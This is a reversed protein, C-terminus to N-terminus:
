AEDQVEKTVDPVVKTFRRPDTRKTGQLKIPKQAGVPEYLCENKDNYAMAKVLGSRRWDHVTTTSIGLQEAIEKQTLMGAERLRQFRSKLRYDRRLRNIMRLTFLQGKGSRWGQQNLLTVIQGETHENLLRDIEAVVEPNTQWSAWAPRPLPLLLTRTAGGKFRVQATLQEGKHLTVDEILLRVMRKREREPTRLDQWLKPFDTALAMIQRRSPEDLVARDAHHQREYQEQAETLGRLKDNWDAELADAV